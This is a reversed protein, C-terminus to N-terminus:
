LNGEKLMIGKWILEVEPNDTNSTSFFDKQIFISTQGGDSYEYTYDLLDEMGTFNYGAIKLESNNVIILDEGNFPSNTEIWEVWLEPQIESANIKIPTDITLNRYTKNTAFIIRYPIMKHVEVFKKINEVAKNYTNIGFMEFCLILILKGNGTELIFDILQDSTNTRNVLISEIIIGRVYKFYQYVRWKVALKNNVERSIFIQYLSKLQEVTLKSLDATTDYDDGINIFGELGNSKSTKTSKLANKNIDDYFIPLEDVTFKPEIHEVLYGLYKKSKDILTEYYQFNM